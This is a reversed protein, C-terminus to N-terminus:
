FLIVLNEDRKQKGPSLIGSIIFIIGLTIDLYALMANMNFIRVLMEGSKTFWSLGAICLIIGAYINFHRVQGQLSCIIGAVSLVIFAVSQYISTTLVAFVVTSFLGWCGAALMLISIITTYFLTLKNLTM